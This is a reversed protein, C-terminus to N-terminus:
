SNGGKELDDLFKRLKEIEEPSSKSRGLAHMVMEMASGKFTTELFKDFLRTQVETEKLAATYEHVKGSEIRSILGKEFMRQMQKLTTTYGVQKKKSLEEHVFRVSCPENGWLVRLIELEAESPKDARKASM